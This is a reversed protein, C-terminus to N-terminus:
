RYEVPPKRGRRKEAPEPAPASASGGPTVNIVPRAAQAAKTAGLLRGIKELRAQGAVFPLVFLVVLVPLLVKSGMGMDVGMIVGGTYIVWATGLAGTTWGAEHLRRVPVTALLAAAIFMLILAPSM